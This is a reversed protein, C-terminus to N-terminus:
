VEQDGGGAVEDAPSYDKEEAEGGEGKPAHQGPGPDDNNEDGKAQYKQPEDLRGTGALQLIPWTGKIEGQGNEEAQDKELHDDAIRKAHILGIEPGPQELGGPGIRIAKRKQGPRQIVMGSAPRQEEEQCIGGAEEQHRMRYLPAFVQGTQEQIDHAQGPRPAEIAEELVQAPVLPDQAPLNRAAAPHTACEDVRIVETSKEGHRQESADTHDQGHADPVPSARPSSTQPGAGFPVPSLLPLRKGGGTWCMLAQKLLNEDKEGQAQHPCAQDEGHRPACDQRGEQGSAHDGPDQRYVFGQPTPTEQRHCCKEHDPAEGQPDAYAGHQVPEPLDFQLPRM